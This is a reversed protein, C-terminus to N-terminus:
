TPRLTAVTARAGEGDLLAERRVEGGRLYEDMLTKVTMDGRGATGAAHSSLSPPAVVPRGGTSLFRACAAPTGVVSVLAGVAPCPRGDRAPVGPVAL